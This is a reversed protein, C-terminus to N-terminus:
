ASIKRFTLNFRSGLVRKRKPVSHQWHQQIDGMMVLLTGHHMPLVLKTQHDKNLRLVFDRSVGFSASAIVPHNGLEPEDDAHWGLCDQGDRYWNLLVSNFSAGAAKEVRSKLYLLGDNWEHPVSTIGSYSYVKGADGYWATLRPLPVERGYMRIYDQRWKINFFRISEFQSLSLERWSAQRFDFGHAEQFFAVARDAIKIDFFHQIYLLEGHRIRVKYGQLKNCWKAESIGAQHTNFPLSPGPDTLLNM